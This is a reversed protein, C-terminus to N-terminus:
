KTAQKNLGLATMFPCMLKSHIGYANRDPIAVMFWISWQEIDLTVYSKNAHLFELIYETCWLFVCARASQLLIPSLFIPRFM